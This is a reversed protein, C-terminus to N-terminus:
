LRSATGEKEHEFTTSKATALNWIRVGYDESATALLKSDPSFAVSTVRSDHELGSGEKKKAIDWTHVM